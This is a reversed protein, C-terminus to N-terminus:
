KKLWKNFVKTAMEAVKKTVNLMNPRKNQNGNAKQQQNSNTWGVKYVYKSVQEIGFNAIMKGTLLMDPLGSTNVQGKLKNSQKLKRYDDSLPKMTVGDLGKGSKWNKVAKALVSTSAEKLGVQPNKLRRQLKDLNPTKKIVTTAM